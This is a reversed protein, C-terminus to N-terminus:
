QDFRKRRKNMRSLGLQDENSKVSEVATKTAFKHSTKEPSQSSFKRQRMIRKTESNIDLVDGSSNSPKGFREKRKQIKYELTSKEKERRILASIPNEHIKVGFLTTPKKQNAKDKSGIKSSLKNVFTELESLTTPCRRLINLFQSVDTPVTFKLSNIHFELLDELAEAFLPHLLGNTEDSFYSILCEEYSTYEEIDEISLELFDLAHELIKTTSIFFFNLKASMFEPFMLQITPNNSSSHVLNGTLINVTKTAEDLYNEMGRVLKKKNFLVNNLEGDM